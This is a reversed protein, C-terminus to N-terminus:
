KSPDTDASEICAARTSPKLNAAIMRDTPMAFENAFGLFSRLDVGPANYSTAVAIDM